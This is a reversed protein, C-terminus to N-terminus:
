RPTCGIRVRQGRGAKALGRARRLGQANMDAALHAVKQVYRDPRLPGLPGYVDSWRTYEPCRRGRRLGSPGGHMGAGPAALCPVSM